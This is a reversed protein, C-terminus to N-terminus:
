RVFHSPVHSVVSFDYVSPIKHRLLKLRWLWYAWSQELTGFYTVQDKQVYGLRELLKLRGDSNCRQTDGPQTLSQEECPIKQFLPIDHFLVENKMTLLVIGPHDSFFDYHLPNVPWFYPTLSATVGKLLYSRVLRTFGEYVEYVETLERVGKNFVSSLFRYLDKGIVSVRKNVPMAELGIFSYRSDPSRGFLYAVTTM